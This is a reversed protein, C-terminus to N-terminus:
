VAEIVDYLVLANLKRLRALRGDTRALVDVLNPFGAAATAELTSLSYPTGSPYSDLTPPRATPTQRHFDPPPLGAPSTRRPTAKPISIM